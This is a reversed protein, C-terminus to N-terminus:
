PQWIASLHGTSCAVYSWTAGVLKRFVGGLEVHLANLLAKKCVYSPPYSKLIAVSLLAKFFTFFLAKQLHTVTPLAESTHRQTTNM